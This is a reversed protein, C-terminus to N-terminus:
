WNFLFFVRLYLFAEQNDLLEKNEFIYNSRFINKVDFFIIITLSFYATM